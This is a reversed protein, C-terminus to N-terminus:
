DHRKNEILQHEFQSYIRNHELWVRSSGESYLLQGTEIINYALYIPVLNIDVVSLKDSPLNLLTCWDMALINPSLYKDLNNLEFHNFAVAFDYDSHSQATGKSRSGYLWVVAIDKNSAALKQVAEIVKVQQSM